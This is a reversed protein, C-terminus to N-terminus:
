ALVLGSAAFVAAATAGFAATILLGRARRAAIPAAGTGRSAYALTAAWGTALPALAWLGIGVLTEPAEAVLCDACRHLPRHLFAPAAVDSLFTAAVPVALAAVVLLAPAWRPAPVVRAPDRRAWALAGAVLLASLAFHALAVGRDTAGPSALLFPLTARGAADAVAITCCGTSLPVDRKEIALWSLTAGADTAAVVGLLALAVLSRRALPGTKTERDALHLVLWAGALFLLLPKTASAVALLTPLAGQPGPSGAGVGRVGQVCMAEPWLPVLAELLLHLLPWSVLALVVLSGGALPAPARRDELTAADGATGPRARAARVAWAATGVGIAVELVAVLTTAPVYLSSTM